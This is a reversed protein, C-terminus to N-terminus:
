RGATCRMACARTTPTCRSPLARAAHPNRHQPPRQATGRLPLQGAIGDQVLVGDIPAALGAELAAHATGVSPHGAFPVEKAAFM